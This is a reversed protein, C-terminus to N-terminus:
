KETALNEELSTVYDRAMVISDVTELEGLADLLDSRTVSFDDCDKIHCFELEYDGSMTMLAVVTSVIGGMPPTDINDRGFTCQVTTGEGETSTISFSGECSECAQILFPLGFGAKRAAHKDPDTYFPDQAKALTEESMGYGNDSITMEIVNEIESLVISVTSANAEISNQAIDM